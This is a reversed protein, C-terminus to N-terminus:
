SHSLQHAVTNERKNMAVAFQITQETFVGSDIESCLFLQNLLNRMKQAIVISPLPDSAFSPIQREAM